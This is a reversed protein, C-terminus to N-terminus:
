QGRAPTRRGPGCASRCRRGRLAAAAGPSAGSGDPDAREEGEDDDDRQERSGGHRREVRHEIPSAPEQVTGGYGGGGPDGADEEGDQDADAAMAGFADIPEGPEPRVIPDGDADVEGDPREVRADGGQAGEEDGGGHDERPAVEFLHRGIEM